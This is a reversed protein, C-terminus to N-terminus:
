MVTDVEITSGNELRVATVHGDANAELKKISAGQFHSLRPIGNVQAGLSFPTNPNSFSLVSRSLDSVMTRTFNKM